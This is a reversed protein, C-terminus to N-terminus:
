ANLFRTRVEQCVFNSCSTCSGTAHLQPLCKFDGNIQKTLENVSTESTESATESETDGICSGEWGVEEKTLMLVEEIKEGIKYITGVDVDLVPSVM